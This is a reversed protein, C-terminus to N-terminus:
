DNGFIEKYFKQGFAKRVYDKQFQDLKWKDRFQRFIEKSLKQIPIVSGKPFIDGDCIFRVATEYSEGHELRIIHNEIDIKM